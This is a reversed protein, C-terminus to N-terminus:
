DGLMALYVRLYDVLERETLFNEACRRHGAQGLGGAYDPNHLLQNVANGFGRADAPDVLLGSIQHVIQKTLGGVGSAIVPRGKWMAEAVTLGFGEELSKQVVITARRQVANVVAGNLNFDRLSLMVLHVRRRVAEPLIERRARVEAYTNEGEPDDPIDAPDPGVLLLHADSSPAVHDAFANLVGLMDKLPDWRSVQVVAPSESSLFEDQVTRGLRGGGPMMLMTGGTHPRTLGVSALLDAQRSQPLEQNKAVYPDISPLIIGIRSSSVFSPAYEAMTFICRSIEEMYPKLFDWTAAVTAGGRCTGIHCRWALKLGAALLHPAAGLTQPDHLLILDGPRCHEGLLEAMRTTVTRYLEDDAATFGDGSLRGHIGHHLRKTLQFFEPTAGAVLWNVPLGILHHRGISSRLLEAVGGGTATSNVHWIRAAGLRSSVELGYQTATGLAGIATDPSITVNVQRVSQDIDEVDKIKDQRCTM